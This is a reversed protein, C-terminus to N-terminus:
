VDIHKYFRHAKSNIARLLTGLQSGPGCEYTDPYIEEEGVAYKAKDEAAADENDVKEEGETNAEAFKLSRKLKRGEGQHSKKDYIRHM